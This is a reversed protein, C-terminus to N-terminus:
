RFLAVLLLVVMVAVVVIAIVLLAIIYDSAAYSIKEVSKFISSSNIDQAEKGPTATTEQGQEATEETVEEEEEEVPAASCSKVPLELRKQDIEQDGNIYAVIDLYYTKVKPKQALEFTFTNSWYNPEKNYSKLKIDKVNENIGLEENVISLATLEQNDTGFNYLEVLFDIEESCATVASLTETKTLRLDDDDLEIELELEKEIEYEIGEGDEATISLDLTYREAEVEKDVFFTVIYEGKKGAEISEIDYQDKPSEEFLNDDNADITLQIEDISGDDKYHSNFLNKLQFILTVETYPRLEYNLTFTDDEEDKFEEKQVKGKSDTYKIELEELELMQATEQILDASDLQINSQDKIIITGIKEQGPDKKHPVDIIFTTTASSGALVSVSKPEEADYGAPLGTVDVIVTIDTSGDNTITFAQTTASIIDDDDDSFQSYDVELVVESETVSPAAAAFAPLLLVSILVILTTIWKSRNMLCCNAM